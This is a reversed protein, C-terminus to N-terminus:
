ETVGLIHLIYDDTAYYTTNSVKIAWRRSSITISTVNAIKKVEFTHKNILLVTIKM